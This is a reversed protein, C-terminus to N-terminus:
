KRKEKNKKFVIGFISIGAIILLGCVILSLKSINRLTSDVQVTNSDDCSYIIKEVCGDELACKNINIVPRIGRQGYLENTLYVNGNKEIYYVLNEYDQYGSMTWYSGKDYVWNPVNEAVKLHTSLDTIM